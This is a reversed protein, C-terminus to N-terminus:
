DHEANYGLVALFQVKFSSLFYKDATKSHDLLHLNKILLEWLPDDREGLMCNDDVLASIYAAAQLKSFDIRIGHWFNLLTAHTIREGNKGLVFSINSLSFPELHGKLKAGEKKIGRALARIKGFERTYINFLADAEGIDLRKLIIGETTYM